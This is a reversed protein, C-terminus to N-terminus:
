HEVPEFPDNNWGDEIVAPQVDYHGYILITPADEGAGLWEGYVVPHGGTPLAEVNQLGIRKMDEVLWNAARQVDGAREPSTSISPIRLLDYLQEMFRNFHEDVYEHANTM